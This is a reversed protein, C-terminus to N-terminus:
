CLSFNTLGLQTYPKAICSWMAVVQRNCELEYTVLIWREMGYSYVLVDWRNTDDPCLEIM